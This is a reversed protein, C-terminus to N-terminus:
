FVWVSLSELFTLQWYLYTQKKPKKLLKDQILETFLFLAFLFSYMIFVEELALKTKAFYVVLLNAIFLGFLFFANTKTM